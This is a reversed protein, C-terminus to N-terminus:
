EAPTRPALGQQRLVAQLPGERSEMGGGAAFYRALTGAWDGRVTIPAMVALAEDLEAASPERYADEHLVLARPIRPRMPPAEDPVGVTLAAYPLVGEPLALAEVLEPLHTLVGGIWCGQYGLMEAALLLNQGALVADGLGFHVAVGPWEGFVHGGRELLRQLRHVDLCVVFAESATAVHPNVTLAAVRERVQPDVLRIFSYMQATADTPARQAAHLLVDLHEQPMPVPQYKRVTRHADFFARVEAPSLSNLPTTM